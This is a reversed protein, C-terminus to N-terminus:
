ATPEQPPPGFLVRVRQRNEEADFRAFREAFEARAALQGERLHEVLAGLAMLTRAGAGGEALLEDGFTELSVAQVEYDQHAGLNDQLAKLEKVIPAVLEAPFMNGFCELAYRFKKADKRLEHLAEAPSAETITRGQKVLVRYAKWTRERAVDRAPRRAHPLEDAADVTAPHGFPDDLFAAWDRRLSEHRGSRLAEVMETHAALQRRELFPRLPALEPVLDGHLQAEFEPFSLLYVDLDRVPTTVTGLWRFEERFRALLSPPVVGKAQGLVSRTRRVAVRYDHLFESDTDEVVGAENVGMTAHLTRLVEAWAALAPGTPDLRLKLKGTYDGPVKGVRRLAVDVIDTDAPQLVLQAELLSSVEAAAREYGRVPVVEVLTPLEPPRAGKARSQDVVVRAVTKGEGDLLRLVTETTTITVLRLLARMELVAALRDALPSAPLEWVFRPVADLEVSGLSEGTAASRWALRAGDRDRRHELQGGDAWVRWDFTDYVTRELERSPNSATQQRHSLGSLVLLPDAGPELVFRRVTTM